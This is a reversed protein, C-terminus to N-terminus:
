NTPQYSYTDLIKLKLKNKQISWKYIQVWSKMQLDNETLCYGIDNFLIFGGSDEFVLVHSASMCNSRQLRESQPLLVDTALSHRRSASLAAAPSSPLSPAAGGVIAVVGTTAYPALLQSSRVTHSRRGPRRVTYTRHTCQQVTAISTYIYIPSHIYIDQILKNKRFDLFFTTDSVSVRRGHRIRCTIILTSYDRLKIKAGRGPGRWSIYRDIQLLYPWAHMQSPLLMLSATSRDIAPPAHNCNCTASRRRTARMKEVKDGDSASASAAAAVEVLKRRRCSTCLRRLRRLLGGRAVM